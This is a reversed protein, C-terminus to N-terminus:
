AMKEDDISRLTEQNKGYDSFIYEMFCVRFPLHLFDKTGTERFGQDKYWEKLVTHADILAISARTGGLEKIHRVTFDMLDRGYGEHRYEPLVALREVYYTGPEKESKEIAIFGIQKRHATLKFLEIGRKQMKILHEPECFAPNTPCNKLTLNFNKAVTGFAKRLVAVSIILERETKVTSIM